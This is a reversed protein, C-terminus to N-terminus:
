PLSSNLPITVFLLPRAGIRLMRKLKLAQSTALNLGCFGYQYLQLQNQEPSKEKIQGYSFNLCITAMLFTLKSTKM